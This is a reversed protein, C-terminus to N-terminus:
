SVPRVMVGARPGTNLRDAFHPELPRGDKLNMWLRLLTRRREPEEFDEFANRSHLVLHNSLLQIDGREFTMDYRFRDDLALTGVLDVAERELPTLPEGKKEQGEIISKGNYRCSLRHEFWSFVPVRHFTTEDPDDTVGEGRLDYHFGRFLCPLLDPRTARIENFIATSSAVLSEGGSKAPHLCLLGVADAADCHPRLRARTTYGRVNKSYYDGGRDAVRGIMDGAANQHVVKGLRMGIAWYMREITAVDYRTLDLGRILAIGRGNEMEERIADIREGLVPLPLTKHTLSTLPKRRNAAVAAARELDEIEEPQLIQIWSEDRALDAAMWAEPGM